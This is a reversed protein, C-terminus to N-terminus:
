TDSNGQKMRMAYAACAASHNDCIAICNYALQTPAHTYNTLIHYQYAATMM